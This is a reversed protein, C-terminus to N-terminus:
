DGKVTGTAIERENPLGSDPRHKARYLAADARGVVNATTEGPNPWALGWSVGLRVEEASTVPMPAIAVEGAVRDLVAEASEAQRQETLVVLFEDGGWRAVWGRNGVYHALTSALRELAADGAAHGWRDNVTKLGDVDLLAVAFRAGPQDAMNLAARLRREGERRNLVGTLADTAAEQELRAIVTDLYDLTLQTEALLQGGADDFTTPFVPREGGLRAQRLAQSALAMPALLARIAVLILVCGIVTICLGFLIAQATGPQGLQGRALLFVVLASFPLSVGLCAILLVKNQTRRPVAPRSVPLEARPQWGRRTEVAV